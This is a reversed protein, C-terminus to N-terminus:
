TSLLCDVCSHVYIVRAHVFYYLPTFLKAFLLPYGWAFQASNHNAM